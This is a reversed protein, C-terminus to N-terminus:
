DSFVFRLPWDPGRIAPKGSTRFSAAPYLEHAIRSLCRRVIVGAVRRRVRRSLWGGRYRRMSRSGRSFAIDKRHQARRDGYGAGAGREGRWPKPRPDASPRRM